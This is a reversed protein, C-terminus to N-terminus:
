DPLGATIGAIASEPATQIRAPVGNAFVSGPAMVSVKSMAAAERLSRATCVFDLQHDVCSPIM